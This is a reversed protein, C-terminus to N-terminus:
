PRRLVGSVQQVLYDLFARSARTMGKRSPYVAHIEHAPLSWEPLVHELRGDRLEDRCIFEPLRTIGVGALAADKLVTLSEGILRPTRFITSSETGRSLEWTDPRTRGSVALSPFRKLDEPVVPRPDHGFLRPSAVLLQPSLGLMREVLLSDALPARHVFLGIDINEEILNVIRNTSVLEVRVETNTLLFQPLLPGVVYQTMTIPCSIRLLGRPVAQIEAVANEAADAEAIMQQCHQLFARGADTVAFTRTSRQVLRTALREELAAVRRSLRSKPLGLARSAQSFGGHEVVAAFLYLDNLDRVAM